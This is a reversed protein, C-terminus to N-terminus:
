TRATDISHFVQVHALGWLEDHYIAMMRGLGLIHPNLAVFARRSSPAVIPRECLIRVEEDSLNIRIARITDILQNFTPDFEPDALLCDQHGRIDDFGVVGDATTLILQQQSDIVYTVKVGSAL